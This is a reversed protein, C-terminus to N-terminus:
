VFPRHALFFVLDFRVEAVGGEEALDTVALVGLLCGGGLTLM